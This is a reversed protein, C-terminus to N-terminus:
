ARRCWPYTRVTASHGSALSNLEHPKSITDNTHKITKLYQTNTIRKNFLMNISNHQTYQTFIILTTNKFM